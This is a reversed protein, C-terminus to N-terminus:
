QNPRTLEFYEGDTMKKKRFTIEWTSFFDSSFKAAITYKGDPLNKSTHFNTVYLMEPEMIRVADSGSGYIARFVLTGNPGYVDVIVGTDVIFNGSADITTFKIPVTSGLLGLYNDLTIPPMWQLQPLVGEVSFNDIQGPSTDATVAKEYPGNRVYLSYSDYDTGIVSLQYTGDLPKFVIITEPESYRGTYIAGPIENVEQNTVPDVGVARGHPDVIYLDAPSGLEAVLASRFYDTNRTLRVQKATKEVFKFPGTGIVGGQGVPDYTYPNPVNEWIHKPLIPLDGIWRLAYYSTINFYAVVTYPDPAEVNLTSWVGPFMYSWINERLGHQKYYNITFVVDDATFNAGDHWKVDKELTLTVKTGQEWTGLTWNSALWGFDQDVEYPDFKILTDYVLSLVERETWFGRFISLTPNGHHFWGSRVLTTNPNHANLFTWGNLTWWYSTSGGWVENVVGEWGARYAKTYKPSWVPILPVKEALIKQAEMIATLNETPSFMIQEAWYDYEPDLFGVYNDSDPDPAWYRSSHFLRYLEGWPGRSFSWGGTYMHYDYEVWAKNGCFGFDGEYKNVPIGISLMENTIRTGLELREDEVRVYFDLPALDSGLSPYLPNAPDNRISNNDTDSFGAADLIAAAQSPDYPYTTVNTNVYDELAPRPLPTDIITGYGELVDTLFGQKDVLHALAKRFDVDSTPWKQNNLDIEYITIDSFNALVINPDEKLADIWDITPVNWGDGQLPTDILDIEGQQLASFQTDLSGYRKFVVDNVHPGFKEFTEQALVNPTLALAVGIIALLLVAFFRTKNM